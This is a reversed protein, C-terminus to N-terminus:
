RGGRPSDGDGEEPRVSRELIERVWRVAEGDPLSSGFRLTAARFGRAMAFVGATKGRLVTERPRPIGCAEAASRVRARLAPDVRLPLIRGERASVAPSGSADASRDLFLGTGRLLEGRHRALFYKVEEPDGSYLLLFPRFDDAAPRSLREMWGSVPNRGAEPFPRPMSEFAAAALLAAGAGAAAVSPATWLRLLHGASAFCLAASLVLGSAHLLSRVSGMGPATGGERPLGAPIGFFLAKRGEVSPTGPVVLVTRHEKRGIWDVPSFGREDLWLLISAATAALFSAAGHGACLLFASASGALFGAPPTLRPSAPLRFRELVCEIGQESLRRARADIEEPVTSMM